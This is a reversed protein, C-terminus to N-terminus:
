AFNLSIQSCTPFVKAGDFLIEPIFKVLNFIIDLGIDSFLEIIQSLGHGLFTDLAGLRDLKSLFKLLM